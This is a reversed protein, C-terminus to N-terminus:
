KCRCHPTSIFQRIRHIRATIMTSLASCFHFWEAISIPIHDTINTDHAIQDDQNGHIPDHCKSTSLQPPIIRSQAFFYAAEMSSAAYRTFNQVLKQQLTSLPRARRAPRMGSVGTQKGQVRNLSGNEQLFQKERKMRKLLDYAYAEKTGSFLAAAFGFSMECLAIQWFGYAFYLGVNGALWILAGIFLVKRRSFVDSVYGSPIELAFAAIRFLGQILFFDGLTIGKDQYLLVAVPIILMFMLFFESWKLLRLATEDSVGCVFRM